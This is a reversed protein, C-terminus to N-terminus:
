VSSLIKFMDIELSEEPSEIIRGIEEGQYYFIFTPVFDVELEDLETGEAMKLRDVAIINYNSFEFYDAMKFFRPVERQSDVCWTGLVLKIELNSFVEPNIQDLVEQNLEYNEYEPQFWENFPESNLGERDCYGLIIEEDAMEDYIINNFETQAFLPTFLLTVLISVVINKM